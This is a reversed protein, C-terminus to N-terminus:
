VGTIRAMVESASMSEGDVPGHYNNRTGAAADTVGIARGTNDVVNMTTIQRARYSKGDTSTIGIPRNADAINRGQMYGCDFCRMADSPNSGRGFNASDCEPCYGSNRLHSAKRPRYEGNADLEVAIDNTLMVKRNGNPLQQVEQPINSVQQPTGSSIQWWPQNSVSQPTQDVPLGQAQREKAIKRAWFAQSSTM